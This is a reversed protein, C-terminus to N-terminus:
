KVPNPRYLFSVQESHSKVLVLGLLKQGPAISKNLLYFENLDNKLRKISRYSIANNYLGYAILPAAILLQRSRFIIQSGVYAFPTILGYTTVTWFWGRRFNIINIVENQNVIPIPQYNEIAYFNKTTLLITDRTTNTINLLFSQYGKKELQQKIRFSGNIGTQVSNNEIQISISGTDSLITGEYSKTNKINSSSYNIACSSLLTFLIVSLIIFRKILTM